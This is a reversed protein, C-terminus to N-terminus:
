EIGELLDGTRWDPEWGCLMRAVREAAGPTPRVDRRTWELRGDGTQVIWCRAPRLDPSPEEAFRWMWLSGDPGAQWRLENEDLDLWCDIAGLVVCALGHRGGFTAVLDIARLSEPEPVVVDRDCVHGWIARLDRDRDAEFTDRSFAGDIATWRVPRPDRAPTRM